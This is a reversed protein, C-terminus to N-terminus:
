ALIEKTNQWVNRLHMEAVCTSRVATYKEGSKGDNGSRPIICMKVESSELIIFLRTESIHVLAVCRLAVQFDSDQVDTTKVGCCQKRM